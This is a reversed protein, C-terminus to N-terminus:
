RLRQNKHFLHVREFDARLNVPDGRQIPFRAPLRAVLRLNRCSLHVFRDSGLDEVFDATGSFWAERPGCSVLDEPRIGVTVPARRYAGGLDLLAAPLDIEFGGANLVSGSENLRGEFLNMQPQGVFGAVFTNAPRHYIDGPNGAQQISGRNLIIIKEGLTMAEAQDHTVYLMTAGLREHLKALEVRMSARLTADLNSLPEDFLFLKPRRVIARGLAVRQRQGGSLQHPKHQLQAEIELLRAVETVREQIEHKPVEQLRLAFGLNEFVTMHPYLAYNQFVFAVDRARPPLPDVRAAGIRIGGSSATELGAVIRLLTTKGCGSPGLLVCFEGDAVTFSIEGLVPTRGFSKSVKEVSLSAM